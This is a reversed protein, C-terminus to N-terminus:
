DSRVVSSKRKTKPPLTSAYGTSKKLWKRLEAPKKMIAEPVDVYEKLGRGPAMEFPKADPLKIFKAREDESLRLMMRSGFICCFMQGNVFASPYGFMKRTEAEPLYSIADAFLEKIWDPAPDFKPMPRKFAKTKPAAKAAPTPRTASKAKTEM